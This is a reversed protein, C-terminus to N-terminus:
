YSRRDNSFWSVEFKSEFSEVSSVKTYIYISLLIVLLFRRFFTTTWGPIEGRLGHQVLDPERRIYVSLWTPLTVHHGDKYNTKQKGKARPLFVQPGLVFSPFLREMSSVAFLLSGAEKEGERRKRERPSRTFFSHRSTPFSSPGTETDSVPLSVLSAPRDINFGRGEM